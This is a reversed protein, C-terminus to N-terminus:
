RKWMFHYVILMRRGEFVAHLPVPGDPGVVTVPEIRTMPLRRRAAALEDSAHTHAKERVLLEARAREWDERSVIRPTAQGTM